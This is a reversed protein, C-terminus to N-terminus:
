ATKHLSAKPSWSSTLDYLEFQPRTFEMEIKTNYLYRQPHKLQANLESFMESLACIHGFSAWINKATSFRKCWDKFSYVRYQFLAWLKVFRIAFPWQDLFRTLLQDSDLDHQSKILGSSPYNQWCGAFPRRKESASDHFFYEETCTFVYFLTFYNIFFDM